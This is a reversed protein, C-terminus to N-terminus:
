LFWVEVEYVKIFNKVPLWHAFNIILIQNLNQLSVKLKLFLCRRPILKVQNKSPVIFIVISEERELVKAIYKHGMILIEGINQSFSLLKIDTPLIILDFVIKVKICSLFDPIEPM